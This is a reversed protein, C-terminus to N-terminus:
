ARSTGNVLIHWSNVSAITAYTVKWISQKWLMAESSFKLATSIVFHSRLSITIFFMYHHPHLTVNTCLLLCWKFLSSSAYPDLSIYKLVTNHCQGYLSLVSLKNKTYFKSYQVSPNIIWKKRHIQRHLSEHLHNLCWVTLVIKM